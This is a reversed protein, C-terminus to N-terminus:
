YVKVILSSFFLSGGRKRSLIKAKIYIFKFRGTRCINTNSQHISPGQLNDKELIGPNINFRFCSFFSAYFTNLANQNNAYIKRSYSIKFNLPTIVKVM